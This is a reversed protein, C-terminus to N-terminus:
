DFVPNISASIWIVFQETQMAFSLLKAKDLRTFASKLTRESSPCRVV